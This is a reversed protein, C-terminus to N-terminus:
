RGLASGIITMKQIVAMSSNQRKSIVFGIKKWSPIKKFLYCYLLASQSPYGSIFIMDSQFIFSIIYKMNDIIEGVSQYCFLFVVEKFMMLIIM